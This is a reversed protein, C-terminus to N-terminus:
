VSIPLEFDQSMMWRGEILAKMKRLDSNIHARPDFGFARVLAYGLGGARLAYALEVRVRSMGFASPVITVRGSNYIASGPVSRWEIVNSPAWSLVTTEWRIPVRKPGGVEWVLNGSANTEIKRVFSMFKPYNETKTWFLSIEEPPADVLIECNLRITPSLITGIVQTLDKNFLARLGLSIGLFAAIRRGTGHIRQGLILILLGSAGVAVRTQPTWNVVEFHPVYEVSVHPMEASELSNQKRM